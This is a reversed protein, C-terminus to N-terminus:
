GALVEETVPGESFADSQDATEQCRICRAAWPVADLRRAPIADSCEICEGFGAGRLRLLAARVERLNSSDRHANRIALDREYAYQIEDMQDPSREIAIGDRVRLVQALDREIAELRNQHAKIEAPKM